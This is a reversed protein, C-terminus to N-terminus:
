PAMFCVRMMRGASVTCTHTVHELAGGGEHDVQLKGELDLPWSSLFPCAGSPLDASLGRERRVKTEANPERILCTEEHCKDHKGAFVLWVLM